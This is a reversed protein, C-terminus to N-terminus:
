FKFIGVINKKKEKFKFIKEIEENNYLSINLLNRLIDKIKNNLDIEMILLELGNRLPLYLKDKLSSTQKELNQSLWKIKEDKEEIKSNLEKIEAKISNLQELLLKETKKLSNNEQM